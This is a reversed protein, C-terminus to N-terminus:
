FTPMLTVGALVVGLGVVGMLGTMPTVYKLGELETMGSMRTIVWFGSDNMWAIPKSGSGIACAIWVPDFTLSGSHALGSLIGVSTIMAVTASGQATRIAMTILWAMSCIVIPSARPLDQILGAVDTQRLIGGFAGGAATILIIVGGSALASGMSEGLKRLTPRKQWYLTAMAVAAAITLALTKDGLTAAVHMVVGSLDEGLLSALSTQVAEQKLVTYGAIFIVPLLIPMLSLWFPPLESPDVQTTQELEDLSFDESERLPLTWIRNAMVAWAYGLLVCFVGVLSGVLILKGVEIGLQEAVILPGPTPPVLSHAM